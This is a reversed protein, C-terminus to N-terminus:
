FLPTIEKVLHAALLAPTAQPTHSMTRPTNEFIAPKIVLIGSQTMPPMVIKKNALTRQLPMAIAAVRSRCLLRTLNMMAKLKATPTPTVTQGNAKMSMLAETLLNGHWGM